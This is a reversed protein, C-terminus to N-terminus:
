IARPIPFDVLRHGGLTAHALHYEPNSGEFYVIKIAEFVGAATQDFFYERPSGGYLELIRRESELPYCERGKIRFIGWGFEDLLRRDRRTDRGTEHYDKGDMEVGIKLFPLAFDIFVGGVPYQPYFPLGKCRIIDWAIREIPSFMLTWDVFYANVMGWRSQKSRELIREREEDYLRRIIDWREDPTAYAFDVEPRYGDILRRRLRAMVQDIIDGISIVNPIETM